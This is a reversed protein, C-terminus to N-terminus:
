PNEYCMFHEDSTQNGQMVAALDLGMVLLEGALREWANTAVSSVVVDVVETVLSEQELSGVPALGSGCGWFLSSMCRSSSEPM